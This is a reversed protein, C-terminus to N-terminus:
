NQETLAQKSIDYSFGRRAMKALDKKDVNGDFKLSYVGLKRKKAYYIASSLDSNIGLEDLAIKIYEECIGKQALKAVIMKFSNGKNYFLRAKTMAFNLDNIYNYNKCKKVVENVWENIQEINQETNHQMSKKIRKNLIDRLSKETGGFRNLYHFSINELRKLTIKKAKITKKTKDINHKTNFNNVM